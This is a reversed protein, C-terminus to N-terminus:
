DMQTALHKELRTELRLHTGMQRVKQKVMQRVWGTEMQMQTVMLCDMLLGTLRETGFDLRKPIVMRRVM